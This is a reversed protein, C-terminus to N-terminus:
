ERVIILTQIRPFEYKTNNNNIYFKKGWPLISVYHDKKVKSMGSLDIKLNENKRLTITLTHNKEKFRAM